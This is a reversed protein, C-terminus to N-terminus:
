PMESQRQRRMPQMVLDTLRISLVPLRVLGNKVVVPGSVPDSVGLDGCLDELTHLFGIMNSM